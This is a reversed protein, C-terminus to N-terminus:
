FRVERLGHMKYTKKAVVDFNRKQKLFEKQFVFEFWEPLDEREYLLDRVNLDEPIM